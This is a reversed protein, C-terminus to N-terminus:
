SAPRADREAHLARLRIEAGPRVRGGALVRAMWGSRGLMLDPFRPDIAQLVKCPERVDSLQLRVEDGVELLDGPRLASLDLGETLLNEGYAGPAAIPVDDRELTRTMEVSLLCLARDPGGHLVYRHRDGELGLEGIIGEAVPHKPIGGAGLCVAVIRGESM